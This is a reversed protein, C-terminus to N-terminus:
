LHFEDEYNPYETGLLKDWFTFYLGYHVTYKRHHMLHHMPGIFWRGLWHHHSSSPFVEFGLHTLVAWVTMTMLVAVLTILHLPVTFIVGVFFLAQIIAEPLDFAFSSWPTPEGSRHHGQHMWKFILPHHFMRHIFYFYTDQLILVAVFSVGLYWLGYKHLDTYFLTVGIGYKSILAACLAFVVASLVSLKIDTQISGAMPPKLRLNRKALFKGVASYFLLYAGGAILFYRALIVAFLVFWYFLFSHNTM